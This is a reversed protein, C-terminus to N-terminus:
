AGRQLARFAWISIGITILSLLITIGPHNTISQWYITLMASDSANRGEILFALAREPTQTGILIAGALGLGFLSVFGAATLAEWGPRTGNVCKKELQRFYWGLLLAGAPLMPLLYRTAKKGGISFLLLGGLFWFLLLWLQREQGQRLRQWALVLGLPLFLSWPFMGGLLYPLYYWWLSGRGKDAKGELWNAPEGLFMHQVLEPPAEILVLLYWSIGLAIFLLWISALTVLMPVIRLSFDQWQFVSGAAIELWHFLPPKTLSEASLEGRLSPLIYDGQQQMEYAIQAVRAEGPSIVDRDFAGAYLSVLVLM